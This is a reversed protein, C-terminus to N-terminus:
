APSWGESVGIFTQAFVRVGREALRYRPCIKLLVSRVHSAVDQMQAVPIGQEVHKGIFREGGITTTQLYRPDGDRFYFEHASNVADLHSRLASTIQVGVFLSEKVGSSM